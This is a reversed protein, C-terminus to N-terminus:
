THEEKLMTLSLVSRRHEPLPLHVGQAGSGETMFVFMRGKNTYM